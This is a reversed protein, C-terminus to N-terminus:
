TPSHGAAINKAAIMEIHFEMEDVVDGRVDPRLLRMYRRWMPTSSRPAEGM